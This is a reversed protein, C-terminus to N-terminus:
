IDPILLLWKCLFFQQYSYQYCIFSVLCAEINAHLEPALRCNSVYRTTLPPIFSTSLFIKTFLLFIYYSDFKWAHIIWELMNEILNECTTEHPYLSSPNFWNKNCELRIKFVQVAQFTSDKGLCSAEVEWDKSPNNPEAWPHQVSTGVFFVNDHITM